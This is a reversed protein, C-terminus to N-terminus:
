YINQFMTLGFVETSLYLTISVAVAGDLRDCIGGHGPIINSSDKTNAYRKMGSEVFDGVQSVLSLVLSCLLVNSSTHTLRMYVYGVTVAGLWGGCIGSWTKGPSIAPCALPGGVTKGVIYGATDTIVALFIVWVYCALGFENRIHLNVWGYLQLVLLSIFLLLQDKSLRTVRSLPDLVYKVFVHDSVSVDVTRKPRFMMWLEWSMVMLIGSVLLPFWVGNLIICTMAVSLIAVSSKVRTVTEASRLWCIAETMRQKYQRKRGVVELAMNM